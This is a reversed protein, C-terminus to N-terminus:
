IQSPCSSYSEAMGYLIAWGGMTGTSSIRASVRTSIIKTGTFEPSEYRCWQVGGSGIESRIVPHWNETSKTMSGGYTTESSGGATLPPAGLNFTFTTGFGYTTTQNAVGAYSEQPQASEFGTPTSWGTNQRDFELWARKFGDNAGSGTLTAARMKGHIRWYDYATCTSCAKYDNAKTITWWIERNWTGTTNNIYGDNNYRWASSPPVAYGARAAAGSPYAMPVVDYVLQGAANRGERVTIPTSADVILQQDGFVFVRYSAGRKAIGEGRARATDIATTAATTGTVDFARIEANSLQRAGSVIVLDPAAEPTASTDSTQGLASTTAGLWLGAVVTLVVASRATSRVLRPLKM